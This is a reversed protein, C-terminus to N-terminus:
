AAQSAVQVGSCRAKFEAMWREHEERLRKEREVRRQEALSLHHIIEEYRAVMPSWDTDADLAASRRIQVLLEKCGDSVRYADTEAYDYGPIHAFDAWLSAEELTIPEKSFLENAKLHFFLWHFQYHLNRIDFKLITTGRGFVQLWEKKPTRQGDAMLHWTTLKSFIKVFDRELMYPHLMIAMDVKNASTTLRSKDKLDRWLYKTLFSVYKKQAAPTFRDYLRMLNTVFEMDLRSSFGIDKAKLYKAWAIFAVSFAEDLEESVHDLPLMRLLTAAEAGTFEYKRKRPAKTTFAKIIDSDDSALQWKGHLQFIYKSTNGFMESRYFDNKDFPSYNRWCYEPTAKWAYKNLFAVVEDEYSHTQYTEWSIHFLDGDKWQQLSVIRSNMVYLEAIGDHTLWYGDKFNPTTTPEKLGDVALAVWQRSYAKIRPEYKEKWKGFDEKKTEDHMINEVTGLGNLVAFLRRTETINLRDFDEIKCAQLERDSEVHRDYYSRHLYGRNQKGIKAVTRALDRSHPIEIEYRMDRGMGSYTPSGATKVICEVGGIELREYLDLIPVVKGDDNETLLNSLSGFGTTGFSRVGLRSVLEAIDRLEDIHYHRYHTSKVSADPDIQTCVIGDTDDEHIRNKDSFLIEVLYVGLAYNSMVLMSCGDVYCTHDQWRIEKYVNVLRKWVGDEDCTVNAGSVRTGRAVKMLNLLDALAQECNVPVPTNSHARAESVRWSGDTHNRFIAVSIISHNGESRLSFMRWNGGPLHHGYGGICHKLASGEAELSKVDLMEVWFMGNDLYFVVSEEGREVDSTAWSHWKGSIDSVQEVTMKYLKTLRKRDNREIHLLWDVMHPLDPGFNECKFKSFMRLQEGAEMKRQLHAIEEQNFGDRMTDFTEPKVQETFKESTFFKIVKKSTLWEMAAATKLYHGREMMFNKVDHLNVIEYPHGTGAM